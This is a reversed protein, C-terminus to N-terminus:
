FPLASKLSILGASGAQRAGDIQLVFLDRRHDATRV